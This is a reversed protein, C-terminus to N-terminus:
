REGGKKGAERAKQPNNAFNGGSASGGKSGIEAMHQRDRSVVEGGKRGAAAHGAPDGHWGRGQGTGGSSRRGTTINAGPANASAGANGDSQTEAPRSDMSAQQNEEGGMKETEAM